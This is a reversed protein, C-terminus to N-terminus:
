KFTYYSNDGTVTSPSFFLSLSRTHTENQTHTYAADNRLFSDALISNVCNRKVGNTEEATKKKMTKIKKKSVLSM